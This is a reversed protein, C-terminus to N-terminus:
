ETAFRFVTRSHFTQGRRLITSPFDPHNPSDPFHQTELCFGYHQKYVHGHKGTITGDLFNGSYFQVGPQTTLVELIRGSTPEHVLAARVLSDDKRKILWNHDYGHGLVLQDYDQNIRAGIATPRTFDMPTGQVPRSDGAPILTKDVPTFRDANLMVHHGLVDGNGEGALNFYTHQSLNLPTAKDTTAEYDLILKNEDTLTYSVNVKLNGPYGEEGDKSLYSFGVGVGQDNKFEKAEWLQKNFGNAGGHLSNPGDNKTLNYKVGDLTFAANAIRNAYRGVIAGFYAPNKLYGEVNDYGLVIDGLNGAKDPVRLSVIIGGYNIARVVLGRSNTLTYLDVPRGDGTKGFSEKRVELNLKAAAGERGMLASVLVTLLLIHLITAKHNVMPIRMDNSFNAGVSYCAGYKGVYNSSSFDVGGTAQFILSFISVKTDPRVINQV